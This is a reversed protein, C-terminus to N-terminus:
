FLLSGQCPLCLPLYFFRGFSIPPILKEFIDVLKVENKAFIEAESNGGRSLYFIYRVAPWADQNGDIQQPIELSGKYRREDVSDGGGLDKEM